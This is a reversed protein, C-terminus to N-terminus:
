GVWKAQSSLDNGSSPSRCATFHLKTYSLKNDQIVKLVDALHVSADKNVLILDHHHIGSQWAKQINDLHAPSKENHSLNYNYVSAGGGAISHVKGSGMNLFKLTKSFDAISNAEKAPTGDKTLSKVAHDSSASGHFSYFYIALNDPLEAKGFSGQDFSGHAYLIAENSPSKDKKYITIKGYEITEM